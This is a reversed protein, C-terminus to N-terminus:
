KDLLGTAIGLEVAVEGNIWFEKAKVLADIEEKTMKTRSAIYNHANDQLHRYIKAKEGADTPTTIGGWEGIQAEHWMIESNIGVLRKEGTLLLIFGASMAKGRVRTELMNEEPIAWETLLSKSEWCEFLGGGFSEIDIIIHKINHKDAYLLTASVYSADPRTMYFVLSVPKKTNKDFIFRCGEPLKYSEALDTEKVKLSPLTHCKICVTEFKGIIEPFRRCQSTSSKEKEKEKDAISQSHCYGWFLMIIISCIMSIWVTKLGMKMGKNGKQNIMKKRGFNLKYININPGCLGKM